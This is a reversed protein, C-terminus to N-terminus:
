VRAPPIRATAEVFIICRMAIYPPTTIASKRSRVSRPPEMEGSYVASGAKGKQLQNPMPTGFHGRPYDSRDKPSTRGLCTDLGEQRCFIYVAALVNVMMVAQMTAGKPM